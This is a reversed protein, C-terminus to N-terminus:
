GGAKLPLEIVVDTVDTKALSIHITGQLKKIIVSAEYLGLGFGNSQDTAKFFMDFVQPKLADPIGIGNDEVSIMVKESGNARASIKVYSSSKSQDIYQFANRIINELLIDFLEPDTTISIMDPIDIHCAINHKREAATLKKVTQSVNVPVPCLKQRNITRTRLLRSLMRNMEASVCQVKKLYDHAEDANELLGVNCLGEMRAIPGRLDHAARYVFFDLENNALMMKEVTEKLESTRERVHQELTSNAQQLEENQKRITVQADELNKREKEITEKQAEIEDRQDTIHKNALELSEKEKRLEETRAHVLDKLMRKTHELNKTRLRILLLILSVGTLACFAYFTYTRWFPPSIIVLLTAEQGGWMGDNNTSKVRFTYTGPSLNTYTASRKASTTYVWDEDFNELKYAYLNKAPNRHNIGVFDISVIKDTYQLTVLKDKRFSQMLPSGPTLPKNLIRLGTLYVLTESENELLSDPYFTNLGKLGGFFLENEASRHVANVNFSNSQLGDSKEFVTVTGTTRNLRCLGKDTGIWLKGSADCSISSINNSPLGNETTYHVFNGTKRRFRNLGGGNTGIWIVGHDDEFLTNIDHYSLSTSDNRDHRYTIIEDPANVTRAIRSLGSRTGIWLDGRTDSLLAQIRGTLVEPAVRTFNGERLDIRNLGDWTGVYLNGSKEITMSLIGDNSLHKSGYHKSTRGDYWFLGNDSGIWLHGRDDEALCSIFTNRTFALPVNQKEVNVNRRDYRNVGDNTGVWLVGNSSLTVASIFDSTFNGNGSNRNYLRFPFRNPDYKSVGGETGIWMIGQQDQIVSRCYNNVLSYPDSEHHYVSQVTGTVPNLITLGNNTGIWVLGDQAVTITKVRDDRLSGPAGDARFNEFSIIRDNKIRARSVGGDTGVWLSGAQDWAMAKVFAHALSNPKGDHAFYNVFTEKKPDFYTLGADSGLWLNGKEDEVIAKIFNSSLAQPNDPTQQYRRDFELTSTNFRLLGVESVAVWLNGEKDEYIYRISKDKLLEKDSFGGIFVVFSDSEDDYRNLGDRTGVWLTGDRTEAMSLVINNSLSSTQSQVHTFIAFTYGDFKYLGGNTGIWIFRKSDQLLCNVNVNTLGEDNTLHEFRYAGPQAGLFCAPMLLLLTLYRITLSM